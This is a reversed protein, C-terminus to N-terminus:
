DTSFGYDEDEHMEPSMYPSTGAVTGEQFGFGDKKSLTKSVGFDGLIAKGTESLFVNDPKIDRHIMSCSHMKSIAFALQRTWKKIDKMAIAEKPNKKAAKIRNQITDPYYDSIIYLKKGDLDSFQDVFKAINPCERGLTEQVKAEQLIRLNKSQEEDM